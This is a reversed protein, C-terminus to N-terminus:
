GKEGGRNYAGGGFKGRMTGRGRGQDSRHWRKNVGGETERGGAHISSLGEKVKLNGRRIHVM